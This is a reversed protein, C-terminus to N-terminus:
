ARRELNYLKNLLNRHYDKKQYYDPTNEGYMERVALHYGLERLAHSIKLAAKREGIQKDTLEKGLLLEPSATM